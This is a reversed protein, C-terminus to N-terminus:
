PDFLLFGLFATLSAVGITAPWAGIWTAPPLQADLPGMFNLWGLGFFVAGWFLAFLFRYPLMAKDDWIDRLYEM